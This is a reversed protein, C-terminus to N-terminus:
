MLSMINQMRVAFRSPKLTPEGLTFQVVTRPSAWGILRVISPLLGSENVQRLSVEFKMQVEPSEDPSSAVTVAGAAAGPRVEATVGPNAVSSLLIHIVRRFTETEISVLVDDVVESVKSLDLDM